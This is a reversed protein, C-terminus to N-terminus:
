FGATGTVAASDEQVASNEQVTKVFLGKVSGESM